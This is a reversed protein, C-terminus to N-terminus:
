SHETFVGDVYSAIARLPVIHRPTAGRQAVMRAYEYDGIGDLLPRLSGDSIQGIVIYRGVPQTPVTVLEFNRVRYREGRTGEDMDDNPTFSFYGDAGEAVRVVVETGETVDINITRIARVRDGVQFAM